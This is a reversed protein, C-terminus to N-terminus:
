HKKQCFLVAFTKIFYKSFIASYHLIWGVKLKLFGQLHMTDTNMLIRMRLTLMRLWLLCTLRGARIVQRTQASSNCFAVRERAKGNGRRGEMGGEKKEQICPIVIYGPSAELKHEQLKWEENALIVLEGAGEFPKFWLQRANLTWLIIFTSLLLLSPFLRSWEM